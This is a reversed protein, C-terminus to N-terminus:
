IPVLTKEYYTKFVAAPKAGNFDIPLGLTNYFGIWMIDRIPDAFEIPITVEPTYQIISGFDTNIDVVDILVERTGFLNEPESIFGGSISTEIASSIASGTTGNVKIGIYQQPDAVFMYRSTYTSAGTYTTGPDFGCIYRWFNERSGTLVDLDFNNGLTETITTLGTVSSVTLTYAFGDADHMIAPIITGASSSTVFGDPVSINHVAGHTWVISYPRSPSVNYWSYPIQASILELGYLRLGPNLPVPYMERVPDLNSNTLSVLLKGTRHQMDNQVVAPKNGDGAVLVMVLCSGSLMMVSFALLAAIRNWKIGGPSSTPQRTAM